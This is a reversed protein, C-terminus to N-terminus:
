DELLKEKRLRREANRSSLLKIDNWNWNWDEKKENAFM